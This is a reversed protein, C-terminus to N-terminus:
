SKEPTEPEEHDVVNDKREKALDDFETNEDEKALNRRTYFYYSVIGAIFTLLIVIIVSMFNVLTTPYPNLCTGELAEMELGGVVEINPTDINKNSIKVSEMEAKALTPAAGVAAASSDM